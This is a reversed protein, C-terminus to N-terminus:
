KFMNNKASQKILDIQTLWSQFEKATAEDLKKINHGTEYWVFTYTDSTHIIEYNKEPEYKKYADNKSCYITFLELSTEEDIVYFGSVYYYGNELSSSISTSFKDKWEVPIEFSIKDKFEGDVYYTLTETEGSFLVQNTTEPPTEEKKSCGIFFTATLLVVLFLSIIKKM